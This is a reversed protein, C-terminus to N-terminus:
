VSGHPDKYRGRRGTGRRGCTGCGTMMVALKILERVPWQLRSAFSINVDQHHHKNHLAVLIWISAAILLVSLLIYHTLKGRGDESMEAINM